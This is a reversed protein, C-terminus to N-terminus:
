LTGLLSLQINTQRADGAQYAQITTLINQAIAQIVPVVVSNGFQKYAQM